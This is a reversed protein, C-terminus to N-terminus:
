FGAFKGENEVPKDAWRSSSLGKPDPQKSTPLATPTKPPVVVLNAAAPPKAASASCGDTAAWQSTALGGPANAPVKPGSTATAEDGRKALSPAAQRNGPKTIGNGRQIERLGSARIKNRRSVAHAELKKLDAITYKIRKRPKEAIEQLDLLTESSIPVPNSGHRFQVKRKIRVLLRLLEVLEDQLGDPETESRMFGQAMWNAIAASEIEEVGNEPVKIGTATIESLIQQVIGQMQDAAAEITVAPKPPYDDQLSVLIQGPEQQLSAKVSGPAQVPDRKNNSATEPVAEPAKSVAKSPTQLPKDAHEKQVAITSASKPSVLGAERFQLASQQLSKLLYQFGDAAASTRFKMKYLREQRTNSIFCFPGQIAPAGLSLVDHVCQDKGSPLVVLLGKNKHLQVKM